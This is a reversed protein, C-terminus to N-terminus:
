RRRRGAVVGGLGMLALAGPAPVVVLIGDLQTTRAQFDGDQTDFWEPMQLLVSLGGELLDTPVAFTEGANGEFISNGSETDNYAAATIQADFFGFGFQNTWTGVYSGSLTDGNIDTIVFTGSADASTATINSLTMEFQSDASTSGDAFGSNFLATSPLGEGFYNTLDGSTSLNGEEAAGLVLQSSVSDWNAGMDTYGFTAALDAHASGAITTLATAGLMLTAKM